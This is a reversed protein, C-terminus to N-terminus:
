DKKQKLADMLLSGMTGMSKEESPSFSQWNEKEKIDPPALSIRRAEVDLNEVKLRATDGPKLRDFEGADASQAILSAPMLGTIGPELNIFLGFKERKEVTGEVLTGPAYHRDASAWPDEMADKMSLSIRKKEPLVEKVAVQIKEGVSVVDDAKVIRRTHSMESLHVLGDIGPEIEVFAGFPALRVVKGTLQDGAKIREPATEWPDALVQKLSLSIKPVSKGEPYTIDLVKVTVQQDQSLVEEPKDVRSWSLESIHAMGEVGPALEIFAGYPMLKVVKGDRIEETKLDKLYEERAAQIERNLLERRSIVINRGKEAFRTIIFDFSEGMFPEPDEVYRVDIQSIPCFARKGMVMVSFGGKIVETVKGEVPTKNHAAEELLDLGGAGSISRSLIIESENKSVVYLEVTDGVSCTMEQNEDLLENKDVVGDSKTGTSIYVSNEGISVVEGRIKDGQRIDHSVEADYSALLEAFNEETTESTSKKEVDDTM